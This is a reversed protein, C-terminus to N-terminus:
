ISRAKLGTQLNIGEQLMLAIEAYGKQRAMKLARHCNFSLITERLMRDLLVRVTTEHKECVAWLLADRRYTDEETFDAGRELLYSVTDAHGNRAAQILATYRLM